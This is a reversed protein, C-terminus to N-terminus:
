VRDQDGDIVLIKDDIPGNFNKENEISINYDGCDEPSVKLEIVEQSSCDMIDNCGYIFVPPMDDVDGVNTNFINKAENVTNVRATALSGYLFFRNLSGIQNVKIEFDGSQIEEYNIAEANEMKVELDFNCKATGPEFMSGESILLRRFDDDSQIKYGALTKIKTDFSTTSTGSKFELKLSSEDLEFYTEGNPYGPPPVEDKACLINDYQNIKWHLPIGNSALSCEPIKLNDVLCFDVNGDEPIM